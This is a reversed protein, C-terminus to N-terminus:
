QRGLLSFRGGLWLRSPVSSGNVIHVLCIFLNICIEVRPKVFYQFISFTEHIDLALHRYEALGGAQWSNNRHCFV